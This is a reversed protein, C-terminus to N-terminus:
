RGSGAASPTQNTANASGSAGTRQAAENADALLRRVAANAAMDLATHGSATRLQPNAGHELLFRVVETDGARAAHHLPKVSRHWKSFGQSRSGNVDGGGSVLRQVRALDAESAAICIRTDRNQVIGPRLIALQVGYFILTAVAFFLWLAHAVPYRMISKRVRESGLAWLLRVIASIAIAPLMLLFIAGVLDM